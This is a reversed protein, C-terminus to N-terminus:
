NWHSLRSVSIYETTTLICSMTWFSVTFPSIFSSGFIMSYRPAVNLSSIGRSATIICPVASASSVIFAFNASWIRGSASLSSAKADSPVFVSASASTASISADMAVIRFAIAFTRLFPSSTLPEVVSTSLDIRASISLTRSAALVFTTPRFFHHTSLDRVLNTFSTRALKLKSLSVSAAFTIRSFPPLFATMVCNLRAASSM